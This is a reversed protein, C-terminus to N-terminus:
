QQPRNPDVQQQQAQNNAQQTAQNNAQQTAQNNMTGAQNAQPKLRDSISQQDNALQEFKQREGSDASENAKAVFADHLMASQNYMQQLDM